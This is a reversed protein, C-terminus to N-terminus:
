VMWSGGNRPQAATRLNGHGYSSGAAAAAAAAAAASPPKSVPWAGGGATTAMPAVFTDYQKSPCAPYADHSTCATSQHFKFPNLVAHRPDASPKVSACGSNGTNGAVGSRTRARPTSESPLM